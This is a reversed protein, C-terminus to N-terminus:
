QGISDIMSNMKDRNNRNILGPLQVQLVLIVVQVMWLVFFIALTIKQATPIRYRYSFLESTIYINWILLGISLLSNLVISITNLRHVGEPVLRDPFFRQLLYINLFGNLIIALLGALFLGGIWFDVARSINNLILIFLYIFFVLAPLSLVFNLALFIKWKLPMAFTTGTGAPKEPL